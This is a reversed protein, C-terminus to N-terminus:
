RRHRVTWDCAHDCLNNFIIIIMKTCIAQVNEPSDDLQPSNATILLRVFEFAFHDKTGGCRWVCAIVGHARTRDIWEKASLFFSNRGAETGIGEFELSNLDPNHIQKMSRSLPRYPSPYSFGGGFGVTLERSVDRSNTERLQDAFQQGVQRDPREGAQPAARLSKRASAVIASFQPTLAEV